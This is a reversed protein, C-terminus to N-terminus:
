IGEEMWPTVKAKKKLFIIEFKKGSHFKTGYTWWRRPGIHRTRKHIFSKVGNYYLTYNCIFNSM